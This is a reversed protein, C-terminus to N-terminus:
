STWCSSIALLMQAVSSDGRALRRFVEAVTGPLLGPGGREVPVSIGLLGSGSIARLQELPAGRQRDREISGEAILIAIQDAVALADARTAPVVPASEAAETVLADSM